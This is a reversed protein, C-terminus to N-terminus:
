PIGFRNNWICDSISQILMTVNGNSEKRNEGCAFNLIRRDFRGTFRDQIDASMENM